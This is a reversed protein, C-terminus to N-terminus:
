LIMCKFAHLNLFAVKASAVRVFPLLVLCAGGLGSLCPCRLANANEGTLEAVASLLEEPIDAAADGLGGQDNWEFMDLDSAGEM